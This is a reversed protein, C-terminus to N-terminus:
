NYFRGISQVAISEVSWGISRDISRRDFDVVDYFYLCVFVCVCVYVCECRARTSSPSAATRMTCVLSTLRGPARPYPTSMDMGM